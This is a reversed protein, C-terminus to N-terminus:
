STNHYIKLTLLKNNDIQLRKYQEATAIKFCIDSMYSTMNQIIKFNITINPGLITNDEKEYLFIKSNRENNAYTIAHNRICNPYLM